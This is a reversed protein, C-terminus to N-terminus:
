VANFTEGIPHDGNHHWCTAFIGCTRRGLVLECNDALLWGVPEDLPDDPYPLVRGGHAFGTQDEQPGGPAQIM